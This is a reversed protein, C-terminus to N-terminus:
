IRGLEMNKLTLLWTYVNPVNTMSFPWLIPNVVINFLSEEWSKGNLTPKIVMYFSNVSPQELKAANNAYIEVKGYKEIDVVM